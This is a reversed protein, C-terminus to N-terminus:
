KKKRRLKKKLASLRVCLMCYWRWPFLFSSLNIIAQKATTNGRLSGWLLPYPYLGECRLERLKERAAVVDGKQVLAFVLAKVAFHKKSRSVKVWEPESDELDRYERALLHMSEIFKDHNKSHMASGPRQYYYYLVGETRACVEAHMAAKYSFLVDESYKIECVFRKDKILSSKYIQSCVGGGNGGRSTLFEVTNIDGDSIEFECGVYGRRERDSVSQMGFKLIDVDGKELMSLIESLCNSAIIDDGDVFWIYRGEALSIGLNRAASVGANKQTFLRINPYKEAYGGIVDASNDVSGDNICIIEYDSRPINQELCSDLTESIYGELNYVPIVISLRLM